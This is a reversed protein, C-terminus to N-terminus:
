IMGDITYVLESTIDIPQHSRYSNFYTSKLMNLKTMVITEPIWLHNNPVGYPESSKIIHGLHNAEIHKFYENWTMDLIQQEIKYGVIIRKLWEEETESAKKVLEKVGFIRAAETRQEPDKLVDLYTEKIAETDELYGVVENMFRDFDTDRPEGPYAFEFINKETSDSLLGSSPHTVLILFDLNQNYISTAAYQTNMWETRARMPNLVQNITFSQNKNVQLTTTAGIMGFDFDFMKLLHKTRVRFQIGDVIYCLEIEQPLENIFINGSHLDGQTMEIKDFIYLNYILQFMVQRREEKTLGKFVKKFEQDGKQTSIISVTDWVLGQPVSLTEENIEKTFTHAEAEAMMGTDDLFKKLGSVNECTAIKCLINPTINYKVLKILESYIKLETQLPKTSYTIPKPQGPIVQKGVPFSKFFFMQGPLLTNRAKVANDGSPKLTGKFVLSPSASEKKHYKINDFLRQISSFDKIGLTDIDETVIVNKPTLMKYDTNQKSADLRHKVKDYLDKVFHYSDLGVSGKINLAVLLKQFNDSTVLQYLDVAKKIAESSALTTIYAEYGDKFAKTKIVEGVNVNANANANSNNANSSAAASASSSSNSARSNNSNSAGPRSYMKGKNEAKAVCKAGYKKCEPECNPPSKLKCFETVSLLSM